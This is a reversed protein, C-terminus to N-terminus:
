TQQLVQYDLKEECLTVGVWWGLYANGAGVAAIVLFLLSYLVTACTILGNKSKGTAYAGTLGLLIIILGAGILPAGLYTGYQAALEGYEGLGPSNGPFCKELAQPCPKEHFSSVASLIALGCVTIAVGLLSLLHSITWMAKVSKVFATVVKPPGSFCGPM